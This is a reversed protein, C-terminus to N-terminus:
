KVVTVGSLVLQSHGGPSISPALQGEVLTGNGDHTREHCAICRTAEVHGDDLVVCEVLANVRLTRGCSTCHTAQGGDVVTELIM